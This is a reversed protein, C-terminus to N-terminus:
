KEQNVESPIKVKWRDEILRRIIQNYSEGKFTVQKDLFKKLDLDIRIHTTKDNNVM